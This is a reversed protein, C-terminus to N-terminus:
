KKRIAEISGNEIITFSIFSNSITDEKLLFRSPRRFPPKVLNENYNKTESVEDLTMFTWAIPYDCTTVYFVLYMQNLKLDTSYNFKM